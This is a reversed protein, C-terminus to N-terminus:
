IFFLNSIIVEIISIILEPNQELGERTIERLRDGFVTDEELAQTITVEFNVLILILDHKLYRTSVLCLILILFLVAQAISHSRVKLANILYNILGRIREWDCLSILILTYKKKANKEIYM